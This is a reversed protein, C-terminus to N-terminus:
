YIPPYKGPTLENMLDYVAEYLDEANPKSFYDGDTGYAPRHEKATVTVPAIDLDYFGKREEIVKQMMYATAGGPVDEDFFIIRSSKELSKNIIGYTDFPLLTQVDILEANIGIDKLQNVAEVAIRVCSGYTVITVDKGEKIIEPIGPELTYEGPNEPRPEHLRYGNLPEIIIAPNAWALMTNYFAAAQTMNRPVCVYMGRVSNIIMSLPSGAHWPGELRHGRTSIILPAKQGGKTRYHLTAVDDSITQLAYLLYDFYQIEAIPKFGRLALGIAKGAITTERLGTDFVRLNGYKNQLGELTQNVGGLQGVDEGFLVVTPDKSLIADFNDRLIERAPISSKESSYIPDVRKVNQTESEHEDYLYKSYLNYGNNRYNNVWKKLVPKLGNSKKCSACVNRLIKRASSLVEKRNIVHVGMLNDIISSTEKDKSKDCICSKNKVLNVLEDRERIIPTLYDNYAKKQAIRAENAAAAEIQTLEEQSAIAASLIWQKMKLIADHKQEWEIRESNKYRQHSGSTSHGNPQTLEEIHFLVPTHEERCKKIGQEYAQCLGAYDWGKARIIHIGSKGNISKEFGKLAKSISEKVTQQKVPVSIAYGDDWVSVAMPIQNVAASNLTEFFHGESTSGDGITAFVVENGGNSFKKNYLNLEKSKRYIRSALALGVARPMQGATPSIDASSIKIKTQDIWEGNNDILRTAFHNNFSRGGNDPNLDTNTQGYVMAFFREPTLMGTALMFTQDRYYGSRWDGNFFQKAMAIQAVEKGDGFIGFKAKGSLVEKRAINSMQRSLHALKYDNLVENKFDEFSLDIDSTLPMQNVTKRIQM